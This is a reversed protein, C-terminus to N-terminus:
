GNVGSLVRSRSGDRGDLRLGTTPCDCWVRVRYKSGVEAHM